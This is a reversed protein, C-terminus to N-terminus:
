KTMVAMVILQFSLEVNCLLLNETFVITVKKRLKEEPM